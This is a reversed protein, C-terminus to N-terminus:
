LLYSILPDKRFDVIWKSEIFSQYSFPLTRLTALEIFLMLKKRFDDNLFNDVNFNNLENTIPFFISSQNKMNIAHKFFKQTFFLLLYLM